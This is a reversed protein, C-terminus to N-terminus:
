GEDRASGDYLIKGNKRSIMIIRSSGLMPEEEGKQRPAYITWCDEEPVGYINPKRTALQFEELRPTCRKQAIRLAQQKGVGPFLWSRIRNLIM